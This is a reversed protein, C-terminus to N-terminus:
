GNAIFFATTEGVHSENLAAAVVESVNLWTIDQRNLIRKLQRLAEDQERNFKEFPLPPLERKPSRMIQLITQRVVSLIDKKLQLKAYERQCQLGRNSTAYLPPLQNLACAVVDNIYIRAKQEPSLKQIFHQAVSIVINELANSFGLRARTVYSELYGHEINVLDAEKVSKSWGSGEIPITSDSKVSEQSDGRRIKSRQLYGVLGATVRSSRSSNGFNTAEKPRLAFEVTTAVDRWRLNNKNLIKQLKALARAQSNLEAEPIPTPDHLPDGIQVASIARHVLDNIQEYFENHAKTRQQMWGYQTTAYLSPLRNLAYAVVEALSVQQKLDARVDELQAKAEKIVLEEIANIFAAM